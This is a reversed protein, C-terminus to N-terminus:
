RACQAAGAGDVGMRGAGPGGVDVQAGAVHDDALRVRGLHKPLDAHTGTEGVADDIVDGTRM